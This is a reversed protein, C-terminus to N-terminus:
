GYLRGNRITPKFPEVTWGEGPPVVDYHGNFHLAEEPKGAELTGIVIPRPPELGLERLKSEPAQFVEVKLGIEDMKKSLFSSIESYNEGPPNVTPIQILDSALRVITDRMNELSELIRKEAKELAESGGSFKM